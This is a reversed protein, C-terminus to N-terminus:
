KQKLETKIIEIIEKSKGINQNLNSISYNFIDHKWIFYAELAIYMDPYKNEINILQNLPTQNLYKKKQFVSGGRLAAEQLIDALSSKNSTYTSLSEIKRKNYQTLLDRLRPNFIKIEGTNILTEITSTKYELSISYFNNKLINEFIKTISLNPKSYINNYDDILKIESEILSIRETAYNNDIEFDALLQHYYNKKLREEKQSENWNNIQLAILIGIVVLLIEGIAYKFYRGFQYAPKGTKNEM